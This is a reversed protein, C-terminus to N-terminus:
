SYGWHSRRSRDRTAFAKNLRQRKRRERVFEWGLLTVVALAALALLNADAEAFYPQPLVFM